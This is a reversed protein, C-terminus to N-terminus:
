TKFKMFIRACIRACSDYVRVRSLVHVRANVVNTRADICSDEHFKLSLSVLYYNVVVYFIMFIRAKTISINAFCYQYKKIM